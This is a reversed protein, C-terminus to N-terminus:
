KTIRPLHMERGATSCVRGTEEFKMVRTQFKDYAIWGGISPLMVKAMEFAVKKWSLRAKEAETEAAQDNRKEEIRRREEKDSFEFSVKDTENMKDILKMAEDFKKSKKDDDRELDMDRLRDVLAGEMLEYTEQQM